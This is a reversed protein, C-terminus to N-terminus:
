LIDVDPVDDGVVKKEGMVGAVLEPCSPYGHIVVGFRALLDATSTRVVCSDRDFVPLLWRGRMIAGGGWRTGSALLEVEDCEALLRRDSGSGSCKLVFCTPNPM